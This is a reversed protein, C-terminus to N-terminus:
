VNGLLQKASLLPAKLQDEVAKFRAEAAAVEREGDAVRTQLGSMETQANQITQMLEAIRRSPGSVRQERADAIQRSIDGSKAAVIGLHTEIDSRVKDPTVNPNAVKLMNFVANVDAPRGMQEWVGKFIVYSSPTAYVQAELARLREQDETTLAAPAAVSFQPLTVTQLPPMITATAVPAAPKPMEPTDSEVLGLGELLSKKRTM